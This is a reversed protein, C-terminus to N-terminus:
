KDTTQCYAMSGDWSLDDLYCEGPLLKQPNEYFNSMPPENILEYGIVNSYKGFRQAVVEWFQGWHEWVGSVNTYLQEACNVCAYTLYNEFWQGPPKSFPWPYAHSAPPKPLEDILWTPIGDYSGFRSSLVDQHLDLLVYIGFDQCSEVIEKMHKIYEENIEGKKPVLGSWMIGLRVVNVGWSHFMKLQTRNKMQIDYWPPGKQVSNFGHFLLIQGKADVFQGDKNLRVKDLAQTAPTSLCCLFVIAVM